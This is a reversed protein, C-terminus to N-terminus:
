SPRGRAAAVAALQAELEAARAAIREEDTLLRWVSARGRGSGRALGGAALGDLAEKAAAYTTGARRALATASLGGSERLLTEATHRSMPEPPTRPKSATTRKAPARPKSVTTRKAPAQRPRASSPAPLKSPAPPAPASGNSAAAQAILAARAVNLSEVEAALEALRREISARIQGIDTM